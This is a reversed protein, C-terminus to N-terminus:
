GHELLDYPMMLAMAISALDELASGAIPLPLGM